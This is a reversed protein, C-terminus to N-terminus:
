QQVKRICSGNSTIGHMDEFMLQEYAAASARNVAEALKGAILIMGRTFSSM